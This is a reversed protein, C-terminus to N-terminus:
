PESSTADHNAVADNAVQKPTHLKKKSRRYSIRGGRTRKFRNYKDKNQSAYTLVVGTLTILWSLQLWVLLLPLFAFSGYIANYKSVYIQGTLFLWQILHFLTGTIVGAWFANRLKVKAHPILWFALTFVLWSIFLPSGNLLFQSVPSLRGPLVHQVADSMFVSIGASCLMLFPLLVFVSTYVLFKNLWNRGEKVQWVENFSDEVNCMLSVLTWILSALGIVIFVGQSSHELYNDVYGVLTELAQRQSPLHRFLESQVIKQFGFGRAVAFVMALAPVMALVTNYTLACARVQLNGDLFSRISINCIKMLKVGWSTRTDDWVGDSCYRVAANIRTAIHRLWTLM